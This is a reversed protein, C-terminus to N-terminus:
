WAFELGYASQPPSFASLPYGAPIGSGGKPLLFILVLDHVEAWDGFREFAVFLAAITKFAEFSLRALSRPAINDHGLGTDSPFTIAALPILEAAMDEFMELQLDLM